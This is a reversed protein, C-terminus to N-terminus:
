HWYHWPSPTVLRRFFLEGNQQTEAEIVDGLFLEQDVVSTDM